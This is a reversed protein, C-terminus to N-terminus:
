EPMDIVTWRDGSYVHYVTHMEIVSDALADHDIAPPRHERGAMADRVQRPTARDIGWDFGLVGSPDHAQLRETEKATKLTVPHEFAGELFVLLSVKGKESCLAAWDSSGDHSLSARVVNEPRHAEYTQPVMCGRENLENAVPEPLSPFSSVPLRRIIFRAPQGDVDVTGREVLPQPHQAGLSVGM